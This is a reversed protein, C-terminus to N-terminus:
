YLHYISEILIETVGTEVLIRQIKPNPTNGSSVIEEFNTGYIKGTLMKLIKIIDAFADEYDNAYLDEIFEKITLKSNRMFTLGNSVVSVFKVLPEHSSVVYQIDMMTEEDVKSMCFSDEKLNEEAVLRYKM